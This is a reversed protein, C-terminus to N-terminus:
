VRHKRRRYGNYSSRKGSGGSNPIHYPTGSVRQEHPDIYEVRHKDCFEKLAIELARREDPGCPNLFYRGCLVPDTTIEKARKLLEAELEQIPFNTRLEPPLEPLSDLLTRM